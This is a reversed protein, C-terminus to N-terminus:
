PLDWFPGVLGNTILQRQRYGRSQPQYDPDLRDGYWTLALRWMTEAPVVEGVRSEERSVFADAHAADCFLRMHTCTAVVDEWWDDAPRPVRVVHSLPPPTGPGVRFELSRRCGPCRTYLDLEQGLAACIGFSDWACGGWWMRDGDDRLVFGMPAASFPHAMRISDGGAGLVLHHDAALADWARLIEPTTVGLATAAEAPSPPAGTAALREFVLRRADAELGRLAIDTDANATILRFTDIIQPYSRRGHPVGAWCKIDM